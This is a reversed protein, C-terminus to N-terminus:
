PGANQKLAKQRKRELKKQRVLSMIRMSILVKGGQHPTGKWDLFIINPDQKSELRFAEDRRNVISPQLLDFVTGDPGIIRAFGSNLFHLICTACEDAM